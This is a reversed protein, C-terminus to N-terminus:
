SVPTPCRAVSVFRMEDHLRVEDNPQDEFSKREHPGLLEVLYNTQPNIKAHELIQNATLEKETTAQPEGDVTYEIDHQM